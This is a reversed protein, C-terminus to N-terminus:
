VTHYSAPKDGVHYGFALRPPKEVRKCYWSRSAPCSGIMDSICGKWTETAGKKPVREATEARRGEQGGVVRLHQELLSSRHSGLLSVRSSTATSATSFRAQQRGGGGRERGGGSGAAHSSARRAQRTRSRRPQPLPRPSRSTRRRPRRQQSNPGPRQLSRRRPIHQRHTLFPSTLEIGRSERRGREIPDPGTKPDRRKKEEKTQRENDQQRPASM